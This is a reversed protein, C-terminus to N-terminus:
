VVWVSEPMQGPIEVTLHGTSIKELCRCKFYRREAYISAGLLLLKVCFTPSFGFNNSAGCWNYQYISKMSTLPNKREGLPL